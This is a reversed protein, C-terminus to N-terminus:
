LTELAASLASVLSSAPSSYLSPMRTLATQGPQIGFSSLRGPSRERVNAWPAVLTTHAAVKGFPPGVPVKV